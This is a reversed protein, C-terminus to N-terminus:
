GCASTREIQVNLIVVTDSPVASRELLVKTSEYEEHSLHPLEEM